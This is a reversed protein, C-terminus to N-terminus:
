SVVENQWLLFFHFTVTAHLMNLTLCTHKTAPMLTPCFDPKFVLALAGVIKMINLM